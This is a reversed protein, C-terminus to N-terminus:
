MAIKKKKKWVGLCVTTWHLNRLFIGFFERIAEVGLLRYSLRFGSSYRFYLCFFNKWKNDNKSNKPM